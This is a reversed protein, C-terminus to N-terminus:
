GSGSIWQDNSSFLPMWESRPYSRESLHVAPLGQDEFSCRGGKGRRKPCKRCPIAYTPCRLYAVKHKLWMEQAARINLLSQRDYDLIASVNRCCVCFYLAFLLGLLGSLHSAMCVAPAMKAYVWMYSSSRTSRSRSWVASLM